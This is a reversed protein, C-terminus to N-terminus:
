PTAGPVAASPKNLDLIRRASEDALVVIAVRRNQMRGDLTANDAVPRYEGFGIAAMRSPNVGNKMFLHVVNAARAASLEWNSPYVDNAIPVNDTFGEVQISHNFNNLVDALKKLPELATPQLLASGSDFLIQSKIDIEVWLEDSTVKIDGSDILDQMAGQVETVVQAMVNKSALDQLKDLSTPREHMDEASYTLGPGIPNVKEVASLDEIVTAYTPIDLKIPEVSKPPGHFADAISDTLVRYKGENISSIAYMVVFFAFLLTIFDAYSVLWRDPNEELEPQRRRM